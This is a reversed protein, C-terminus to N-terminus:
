STPGLGPPMRIAAYLDSLSVVYKCHVCELLDDGLQEGNTTHVLVNEHECPLQGFPDVQIRPHAAEQLIRLTVTAPYCSVAGLGDALSM